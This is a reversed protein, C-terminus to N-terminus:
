KKFLASDQLYEKGTCLAVEAKALEAGLYAAHDVRSVLGLRAIEAFVSEATKGKVVHAPKEMELCVYHVAVISEEVRDVFVRFSGQEDMVAPEVEESAVTVPAITELTKSYPEERNRKDKM